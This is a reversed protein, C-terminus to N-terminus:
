IMYQCETCIEFEFGAVLSLVISRTIKDSGLGSPMVFIKHASLSQRYRSRALRFTVDFLFGILNTRLEMFNAVFATHRLSLNVKMSGHKSRASKKRSKGISITIGILRM